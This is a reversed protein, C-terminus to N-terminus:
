NGKKRPRIVLGVGVIALAGAIRAILRYGDLHASTAVVRQSWRWPSPGCPKAGFPERADPPSLIHALPGPRSLGVMTVAPRGARSLAVQAQFRWPPYLCMWFVAVLAGVVIVFSLIHRATRWDDASGISAMMRHLIM